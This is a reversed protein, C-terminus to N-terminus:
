LVDVCISEALTRVEKESLMSYKTIKALPEGDKLMDIATRKREQDVARKQGRAEGIAIGRKEGRAEGISIGRKEGRAEGISIGRKEGRAEAEDFLITMMTDGGREKMLKPLVSFRDSNTIANMLEIFEEVHKLHEVTISFEPKLGEKRKRSAVFYEAVYRFDSRFQKVQEDTLYAIEFLHAEYDSVYKELGEPIRLHDKLHLSSNWHRDAFYLILTIVPYYEPLPVLKVKSPDAANKLSKTNQRRIEARRRLQDRYEAGDYAFDRFIFDPDENTQNELGYVALRIQGHKWYKKVDREQEAFQDEIKYGSRLMGAPELDNEDVQQQGQFLLVNIIDAFVDNFDEFKKERFDKEGM